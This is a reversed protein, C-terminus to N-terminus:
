KCTVLALKVPGDNIAYAVALKEGTTTMAPFRAAEGEASVQLDDARRTKDAGFSSVFVGPPGSRFQYYAVAIGDPNAVIAPWNASGPADPVVTAPDIKGSAGVSALLVKENGDGQRVDEWAVHFTGAQTAASKNTATAEITQKPGAALAAGLPEFALSTGSSYFVGASTGDTTPAPFTPTGDLATTTTIPTGTFLGLDGSAVTDWAVIAGDSRRAASLHVDTAGSTGVQRNAGIAVASGDVRQSDLMSGAQWFIEFGDSAPLVVPRSLAVGSAIRRSAVPAGNADVVALEIADKQPTAWAVASRAGSTAISPTTGPAAGLATGSRTVSCGFRVPGGGGGGSGGSSASASTNNSNSPPPDTVDAAGNKSSCSAIGALVIVSACVHWPRM